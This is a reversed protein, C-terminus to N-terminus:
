YGSFTSWTLAQFRFKVTGAGNSFIRLGVLWGLCCLSARALTCPTRPSGPTHTAFGRKSASARVGGWDSLVRFM